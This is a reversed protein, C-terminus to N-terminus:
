TQRCEGPCASPFRVSRWISTITRRAGRFVRLPCQFGWVIVGCNGASRVRPSGCYALGSSHSDLNPKAPERRTGWSESDRVWTAPECGSQWSGPLPVGLRDFLLLPSRLLRDPESQYPNQLFKDLKRSQYPFHRFKNLEVSLFFFENHTQLEAYVNRKKIRDPAKGRYSHVGFYLKPNSSLRSGNAAVSTKRRRTSAWTRWASKRAPITSRM